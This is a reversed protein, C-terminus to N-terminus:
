LCHPISTIHTKGEDNKISIKAIGIYTPKYDMGGLKIIGFDSTEKLKGSFLSKDNLVMATACNDITVTAGFEFDHHYRFIAPYKTTAFM